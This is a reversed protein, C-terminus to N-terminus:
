LIHRPTGGVAVRVGFERRSQSVLYALTGYLGVLSLFLAVTVRVRDFVEFGSDRIGFGPNRSL